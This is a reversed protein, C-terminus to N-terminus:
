MEIIKVPYLAEVLRKKTLYSATKFGKVDVFRVEGNKWFEGFDVVYRVGGPLHFPLQRLFFLLDGSRRALLLSQYYQAEKKSHFTIGDAETPVNHFKHQVTM